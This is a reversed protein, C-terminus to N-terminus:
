NPPQRTNKNTYCICNVLSCVKGKKKKQSLLQDLECCYYQHHKYYHMIFLQM